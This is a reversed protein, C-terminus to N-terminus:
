SDGGEAYVVAELTAGFASLVGDVESALEALPQGIADAVLRLGRVHAALAQPDAPPAIDMASQRVQDIQALRYRVEAVQQSVFAAWAEM